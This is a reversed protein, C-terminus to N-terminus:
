ARELDIKKPIVKPHSSMLWSDSFYM